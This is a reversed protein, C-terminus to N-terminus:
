SSPAEQNIVVTTSQDPNKNQIQPQDSNLKEYQDSKEDKKKQLQKYGFCAGLIMLLIGIGSLYYIYLPQTSYQLKCGAPSKLQFATHCNDESLLAFNQDPEPSCLINFNVSKKQNNECQSGQSYTIQLGNEILSIQQNEPKGLIECSDTLIGMVELAQYAGSQGQCHKPHNGCFNFQYAMKFFSSDASAKVIYPETRQLKTLNYYHDEQKFECGLITTLQLVLILSIM